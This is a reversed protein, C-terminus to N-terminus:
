SGGTRRVALRSLAWFVALAVALGALIGAIALLSPYNSVFIWIRAYWPVEGVFYPKGLLLSDIQAGRVLTLDGYVPSPRRDDQLVDLVSALQGSSTAALAVVSRGAELPSEFGILAGLPGSTSMVTEGDPTRPRHDGDAPWNTWSEKRQERMRLATDGQSILLPLGKGWKALLDAASGTGIVLLDRGGVSAVDKAPVVEVRLAPLGTWAGMNGLLTLVAAEDAADPADPVVIATDSLDAMRTFPFGSTAFYALNPMATFHVFGSFDITSNPDIAARAVDAATSACLGAKQADMHFQFQLQNNDAVRFAPVPVEDSAGVATSTLLPVNLRFGESGDHSPRLRESRVLQDNISVNLMSDNYTSPATYRYHVDLPASQRAWAYLDPPVRLNVRIQPPNFGSVQLQQPDDVLDLFPVPRDIPAWKPADYPRRVPGPDVSRIQDSSGTMGAHGLVLAFAATQLEKEDRGALVLLKRGSQPPSAPNAMVTVTPGNIQPLSLGQPVAGPMALVIAQSDAPPTNLVSFHAHRYDALEGFWSAVVGATRLTSLPANPPLVFPLSLPRNDQRDFFPRPLLALNDPLAVGSTTLTLSTAPSIDTWLSSHYPDECADTTYHAVMQLKIQNYDTFLLPDLDITRTVEKGADDKDLPLTAVDVGNLQVKIHSLSPILSPSWAMDLKLRASTVVEDTRVGVNLTGNPSEGRLAMPGFNGMQSLTLM